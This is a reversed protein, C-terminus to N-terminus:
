NTPDEAMTPGDPLEADDARAEPTKLDVLEVNFVLASNPPVVGHEKDGYAMNAPVYLKRVEGIRMGNTGEQMGLIAESAGPTFSFPAPLQSDRSSELKKGDPLSLTYHVLRTSTTDAERGTGPRLVQYILGGQLTVSTAETEASTETSTSEGSGSEASALPVPSPQPTVTPVPTPTPAPTPTPTPSPTPTPEPTPSPTPEPTLEPTPEPTPEQEPTPVAVSSEASSTTSEATEAVSATTNEVAEQTSTTQATAEGMSLGIALTAMFGVLRVRMM